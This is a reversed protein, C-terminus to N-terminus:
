SMAVLQQFVLKRNEETMGPDYGEFSIGSTISATPLSDEVVREVALEFLTEHPADPLSPLPRAKCCVYYSMTPDILVLSVKGERHLNRTSQSDRYLLLLLRKPDKAVVERPSLLGHRPWGGEDMTSFLVVQKFKEDPEARSLFDLLDEPLSSGLDKSM